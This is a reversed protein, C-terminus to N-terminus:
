KLGGPRHVRSLLSHTRRWVAVPDRKFVEFGGRWSLAIRYNKFCLGGGPNPFFRWYTDRGVAYVRQKRRGKLYGITQITLAVLFIIFITITM